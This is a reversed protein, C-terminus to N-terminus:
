DHQERGDPPYQAEIMKLTQKDVEKLLQTREKFFYSLLKNNLITVPGKQRPLHISECDRACFFRHLNKGAPTGHYVQWYDDECKWLNIRMAIAPNEKVNPYMVIDGIKDFLMIHEYFLEHKPHIAIVLDDAKLYEQAYNLTIKNLHLPGNLSSSKYSPHSALCGVEAIYRGKNRLKNIEEKYASDIPLGLPSDPFLTMTSLVDGNMTSIFTTTKAICNFLSIRMGSPHPDIYGEKLYSDHVIRYAKELEERTEAIKFNLGGLKKEDVLIRRRFRAGKDHTVSRVRLSQSVEDRKATVGRKSSDQKILIKAPNGDEGALANEDSADSYKM